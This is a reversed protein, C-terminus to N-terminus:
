INNYNLKVAKKSSMWEILATDSVRYERGIKISPFGEVRMLAKAKKSGIKLVEALEDETYINM